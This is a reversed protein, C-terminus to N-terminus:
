LKGADLEPPKEAGERARENFAALYRTRHTLKRGWLREGGGEATWQPM